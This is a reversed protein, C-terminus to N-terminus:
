MKIELGGSIIDRDYQYTSINSDDNIHTYQFVLETQPAFEYALLLSQTFVRDIRAKGFFSNINEFNQHYIDAYAQARWGEGFPYLINALVKNGRYSWNLGDAVERNFEYRITYFGGDDGFFVAYGAGLGTDTSDRDEDNSYPESIFEKKQYKMSFMLLERASLFMNHSPTLTFSQLYKTEDALTFNYTATLSSSGKKGSHMPILSLSQSSVSNTELHNQNANYSSFQTKLSWDQDFKKDYEARVTVVERRDVAGTIGSAAATDSPKLLVNNDYEYRLGMTLKFPRDREKKRDISRKYEDAFAALDTSPDKIVVQGFVEKAEDLREEKVYVLGIQYDAAQALRGDAEKAKKFADIASDNRGAKAHVLGKLFEMDSLPGGAQLVAEAEKLAEDLEDLQYLVEALRARAVLAHDAPLDFSLADILNRKAEKFYQLKLNTLGLYYAAEGSRGEAWAKGLSVLAEEYSEDNYDAIGQRLDQDEASFATGSFSVMFVLLIAALRKMQRDKEQHSIYKISNEGIHTM